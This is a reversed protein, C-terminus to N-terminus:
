AFVACPAQAHVHGGARSPTNTMTPEAENERESSTRSLPTAAAPITAVANAPQVAPPDDEVAAADDGAEADAADGDAAAHADDLPAAADGATAVEGADPPVDADAAGDPPPAAALQAVRSRCTL